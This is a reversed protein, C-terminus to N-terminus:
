NGDNIGIIEMLRKPSGEQKDNGLAIMNLEKEITTRVTEDNQEQFLDMIQRRIFPNPEAAGNNHFIKIALTKRDYNMSRWYQVRNIVHNIFISYLDKFKDVLVQANPFYQCIEEAEGQLIKPILHKYSIEGLLHHLAVYEERKLKVRQGTEDILVVGEFDKIEGAREEMISLMEELNDHKTHFIKPLRCNIHNAIDRLTERDTIENQTRLHRASLLWLGNWSSDYQTLVRTSEHIFEFVYTWGRDNQDFHLKKVYDGILGMLEIQIQKDGHFSSIQLEMDPQHTSVMRRTHWAPTADGHPFFVGVMSGDLKEIMSSKAFDISAKVAEGKDNTYTEGLNVFRIFPFSAILFDPYLFALGRDIHTKPKKVVLGRCLRNYQNRGGPSYNLIWYQGKDGWMIEQNHFWDENNALLNRIITRLQRRELATTKM